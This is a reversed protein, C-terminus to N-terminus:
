REPSIVKQPIGNASVDLVFGADLLQERLKAYPVDEASPSGEQLAVAVAFASVQGMTTFTHETRVLGFGLYSSSPAVPTLLNSAQERHPTIARYPVNFPRWPPGENWIFGEDYVAGDKVIRRVAHVDQPWLNVLIPDPVTVAPSAIDHWHTTILVDDSRTMRRLGRAYM